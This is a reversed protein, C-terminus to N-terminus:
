LAGYTRGIGPVEWNAPCYITSSLGCCLAEALTSTTNLVVCFFRWHMLRSKDENLRYFASSPLARRERAKQAEDGYEAGGIGTKEEGLSRQSLLKWTEMAGALKAKQQREAAILSNEKPGRSYIQYASMGYANMPGRALAGARMWYEFDAAEVSESTRQAMIIKTTNKHQYCFM